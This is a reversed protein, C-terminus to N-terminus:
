PMAYKHGGSLLNLLQFSKSAVKAPSISIDYIHNTDIILACLSFIFSRTDRSLQSITINKQRFIVGGLFSIGLHVIYSCIAM